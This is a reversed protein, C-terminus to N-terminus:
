ARLAEWEAKRVRSGNLWYEKSGDAREIAPLGGDRHRQGNVYYVKYGNVYEIAPLGGDRHLLGNVLYAKYGDPREIAPLGGDRHLRGSANRYYTVGFEDHQVYGGNPLETRTM